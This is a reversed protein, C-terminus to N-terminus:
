VAKIFKGITILYFQLKPCHTLQWATVEGLNIELLYNSMVLNNKLENKEVFDMWDIFYNLQM